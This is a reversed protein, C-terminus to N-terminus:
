QHLRFSTRQQPETINVSRVIIPMGFRYSRLVYALPLVNMGKRGKRGKRGERRQTSIKQSQFANVITVNSLRLLASVTLGSLTLAGTPAVSAKRPSLREMGNICPECPHVAKALTINTRWKRSGM